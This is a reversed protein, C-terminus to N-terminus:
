DRTSRRYEEYGKKRLKCSPCEGCGMGWPHNTTHGNYCTMTDDLILELGGLKDALAFTEAKTLYMIPTHIKIANDEVLGAGLNTVYQMNQIYENRCDPYGSYDTQCVGMVLHKAGVTQAFGHALTIFMQNRNPVYSSPLGNEKVESIDEADSLLASNVVESLSNVHVRKLPIELKKCINGACNIESTHRQGYVFQICVVSKFTKMAWLLCTTSDQGGSFVVVAKEQSLVGSEVQM